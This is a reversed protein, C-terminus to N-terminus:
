RRSRDLFGLIRGYPDTVSVVHCGGDAFTPLWKALLRRDSPRYLESVSESWPTKKLIHCIFCIRRRPHMQQIHIFLHRPICRSTEHDTDTSHVWSWYETDKSFDFRSVHALPTMYYAFARHFIFALYRDLSILSCYVIQFIHTHM